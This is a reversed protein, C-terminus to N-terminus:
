NSVIYLVRVAVSNLSISGLVYCLPDVPGRSLLVIECTVMDCHHSYHRTITFLPAYSSYHHVTAILHIMHVLNSGRASFLCIVEVLSRTPSYSTFLHM